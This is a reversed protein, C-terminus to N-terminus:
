TRRLSDNAPEPRDETVLGGDMRQVTWLEAPRDGAATWAAGHEVRELDAAIPVRERASELVLRAQRVFPERSEAPLLVAMRGLTTVLHEAVTADGAGYHRIQAFAVDILRAFPPGHVIVRVNGDRGTRVEAPRDRRALTVLAEGLRDVCILATTPDNIGPSLAKVAIDTLHRLGFEVDSQLTREPGLVFARRVAESLGGEVDTPPWVSALVGGPLVFEGITPDVRVVLKREEALDFLADEDIAQFYGGEQARVVGPPVNPIVRELQPPEAPRGVNAPFLHDILDLTERAARDIIVSAQISRAAHHVFYILLGISVLALVIAVTAAIVPVFPRGDQPASRVSRLVLLAYTFTAIFVGLVIQNGRDGTFRRLVRPTFQSSALQLAVITISFVVGTITIMTGAIASLVRRTGEAGGGLLWWSAGADRGLLFAQDLRVLALALAVALATCITPVFWLSDRLALWWSGFRTRM